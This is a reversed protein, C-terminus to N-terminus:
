KVGTIIVKWDKAACLEDVQEKKLVQYPAFETSDTIKDVRYNMKGTVDRDPIGWLLTITKLKTSGTM